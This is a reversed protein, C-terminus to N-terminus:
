SLDKNMSDILRMAAAFTQEPSSADIWQVGPEARLWTMQRKAYARTRRKTETMADNVGLEGAVVSAAERYGIAGFPRADRPYREVLRRTEDVLGDAYMREVRADLAAVLPQRELRLAIKM